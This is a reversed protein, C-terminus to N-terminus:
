FNNGREPRGRVVRFNELIDDEGTKIDARILKECPFRSSWRRRTSSNLRIAASQPRTTPTM